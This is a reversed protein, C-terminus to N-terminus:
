AKRGMAMFTWRDDDEVRVAEAKRVAPDEVLFDALVARVAERLSAQRLLAVAAITSRVLVTTLITTVAIPIWRALVAPRAARIPRFPAGALVARLAACMLAAAHAARVHTLPAVRPPQM